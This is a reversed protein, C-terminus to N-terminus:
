FVTPLSRTAVLVLADFYRGAYPFIMVVVAVGVATVSYWVPKAGSIAGYPWCNSLLAADKVSMLV